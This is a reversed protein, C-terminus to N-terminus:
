MVQLHPSVMYWCYIFWVSELTIHATCVVALRHWLFYVCPYRRTSQIGNCERFPWLLNSYVSSHVSHSFFGAVLALFLASGPLPATRACARPYMALLSFPWCQQFLTRWYFLSPSVQGWIVVNNHQLSVHPMLFCKPPSLGILIGPTHQKKNSCWELTVQHGLNWIVDWSMRHSLQLVWDHCWSAVASDLSPSEQYTRSLDQM